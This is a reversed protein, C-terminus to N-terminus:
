IHILSLHIAARGILSRLLAKAETDCHRMLTQCNENVHESKALKNRLSRRNWNGIAEFQKHKPGFSLHIKHSAQLLSELLKTLQTWPRARGLRLRLGGKANM